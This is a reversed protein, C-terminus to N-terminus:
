LSGNAGLVGTCFGSPRIVVCGLEASYYRYGYYVLGTEDDTYKTSFRFPNDHVVGSGDTDEAKIINGFPAYECAVTYVNDWTGLLQGAVGYHYDTGGDLANIVAIRRGTAPEYAYSTRNTAADETYDVHGKDVGVKEGLPDHNLFRGTQPRGYRYDSLQM